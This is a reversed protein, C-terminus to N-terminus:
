YLLRIKGTRYLTSNNRSFRRGEQKPNKISTVDNATILLSLM